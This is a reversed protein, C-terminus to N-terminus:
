PIRGPSEFAARLIGHRSHHTEPAVLGGRRRDFVPENRDSNGDHDDRRDIRDAGADFPQEGVHGGPEGVDALLPLLMAASTKRCDGGAASLDVVRRKDTIGTAQVALAALGGIVTWGARRM